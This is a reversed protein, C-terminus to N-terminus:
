TCVRARRDRARLAVHGRGARGGADRAPLAGRAAELDHVKSDDLRTLARVERPTLREYDFLVAAAVLPGALSGRGAEDAGAVFRRELRPRVPVPPPPRRRTAAQAVAKRLPHRHAQSALLHLLGTRHDMERPRPGLLPQRREGWSQRGDYFLSGASDQDAAPFQLHRACLTEYLRGEPAQRQRGRPRRPDCLTDGPCPWSGSSSTSARGARCDAAPVAQDPSARRRLHQEDAGKPPHFVVVDGRDPDSFQYNVRSVLVRQGVDLTPEMSESPIRYPKVLFAQILLALGIAVAVIVVLELLSHRGRQPVLKRAASTLGVQGRAPGGRVRGSRSGRIREAAEATEARGRARGRSRSQRPSRPRPKPSRRGGAAGRRGGRGRGTQRPARPPPKKSARPRRPATRSRPRRRRFRADHQRGRAPLRAERARARAPRRARAPLLAQGAAGRRAGRGRDARDQAFARPFTREVGVGFSLKRM